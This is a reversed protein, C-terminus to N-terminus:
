YRDSAESIKLTPFPQISSLDGTTELPVPLGLVTVALVLLGIIKM